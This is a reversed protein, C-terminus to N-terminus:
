AANETQQAKLQNLAKAAAIKYGEALTPYNFIVDNVLTDIPMNSLMCCQGIHILNAADAGVIHVGLIRHSQSCVLLKLLGHSDGRIYGRAIERYHAKGVVYPVGSGILEEENKGVSSMEPITYIGLPFVEPFSVKSGFAHLAAIRGQEASTSALAPPGIVDGAAYINKVSTQFHNNVDIAGRKNTLIGVRELGLRNSTSERGAAFFFLDSSLTEQPFITMVKPGDFRIESMNYGLKFIVGVNEMARMLEDAVERDHSQMIHSRADVITTQVGLAQFICAYECGIVGAGFVVISKPLQELTLIEDSDVVRWGDFPIFSPRRPKSGTAILIFDTNIIKGGTESQLVRVEQPSEIYGHGRIIHVKAENLLDLVLKEEDRSVAEARQQLRLTSLNGLLRDVWHKGVHSHISRITALTERFTKSPITGTHLWTGGISEPHREIIAAKKGFKSAELAAYIGAPGSGIIVLDFKETM